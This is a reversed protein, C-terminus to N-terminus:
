TEGQKSIFVNSHKTHALTKPSMEVHCPRLLQLSGTEYLPSDGGGRCNTYHRSLRSLTQSSCTLLELM